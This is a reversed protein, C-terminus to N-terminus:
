QVDVTNVNDFLWSRPPELRTARSVEDGRIIGFKGGHPMVQTRVSRKGESAKEELQRPLTSTSPM